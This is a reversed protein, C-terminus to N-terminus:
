TSGEHEPGGEALEAIPEKSQEANAPQQRDLESGLHILKGHAQASEFLADIVRMDAISHSLPFRQAAGKVVVDYFHDVMFRYENKPLSWFTKKSDSTELVAKVFKGHTYYPEYIDLRGQTGAIHFHRRPFTNFAANFQAFISDGMDMLAFTQLDIGTTGNVMHAQVALPERGSFQRTIDICYCGVDMLAGGGLEPALRIDNTKSQNYTFDVQIARLSGLGGDQVLRILKEYRPHYRYMFAEMLLKGCDDAVATMEQAEQANLGIPKECLVHKGAQLARITWPKHQDNPLPIYVADIEPDALLAEYTGYAKPIGNLRAFEQAKTLSRSAVASLTNNKAEKFAPVLARRAINATGLIGWTLTQKQM